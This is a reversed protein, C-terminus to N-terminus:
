VARFRQVQFRKGSATAQVSEALPAFGCSTAVASVQSPPVLRMCSALTQISAFPTPSVEAITASPLQVVTALTGGGEIWTRMRPVVLEVDVYELLLAAFVLAVPKIPLPDRQVDGGIVDLDQFRGTFRARLADLYAANLDVAVVRTTVDPIIRELGNGGACGLVAVSSPAHDRLVQEFVDGLLQAQAVHPLTMHGEYDSLPIDLWPNRMRNGTRRVCRVAAAQAKRM